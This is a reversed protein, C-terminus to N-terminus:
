SLFTGLFLWLLQRGDLLLHELKRLFPCGQESILQMLTCDLGSRTNTCFHSKGKKKREYSIFLKPSQTFQKTRDLYFALARRVDLTHLKAEGDDTHPKPFFVSVIISQNRHFDSIAKPLFRTHTHLVVKDKHFGAFPPDAMLVHLNM